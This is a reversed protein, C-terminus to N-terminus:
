SKSPGSAASPMRAICSFRLGRHCSFEPRRIGPAGASICRAACGRDAMPAPIAMLGRLQLRPLAAVADALEPSASLSDTISPTSAADETVAGAQALSTITPGDNSGTFVVTSTAWSLTGNGLRIAYTFSDTWSEGVALAQLSAKAAVSMSGTDYGVKGDSTIWIRAGMASFDTSASATRATDQALLDAPAYNKTATSASSANDLSWLSKSNGGLDNSMVDLIVSTSDETILGGNSATGLVDDKAQPTNSFSVTTGGNTNTAM